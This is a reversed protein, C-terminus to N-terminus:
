SSQRCQHLRCGFCVSCGLLWGGEVFVTFQALAAEATRVATITITAGAPSAVRAAIAGRAATITMSARPSITARAVGVAKATWCLVLLQALLAVCLGSPHNPQEAQESERAAWAPTAARAPSIARVM